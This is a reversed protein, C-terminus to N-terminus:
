EVVIERRLANPEIEQPSVAKAVERQRTAGIVWGADGPNDRLLIGEYGSVRGRQHDVLPRVFGVIERNAVVVTSDGICWSCAAAVYQMECCARSFDYRHGSIGVGITACNMGPRANRHRIDGM